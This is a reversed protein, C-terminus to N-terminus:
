AQWHTFDAFSKGVRNSFSFFGSGIQISFTRLPITGEKNKTMGLGTDLLLHGTLHVFKHFVNNQAIPILAQVSAQLDIVVMYESIYVNDKKDFSRYQM